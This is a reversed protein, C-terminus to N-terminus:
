VSFRAELEAAVDEIAYVRGSKSDAIGQVIAADLEKLRKENEIWERLAQRIVESNSGYIGSSVKERIILAM